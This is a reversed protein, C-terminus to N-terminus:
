EAEGAPPQTLLDLIEGRMRSIREDAQAAQALFDARDTARYNCGAYMVAPEPAEPALLAAMADGLEFVSFMPGAQDPGFRFHQETANMPARELRLEASLAQAEARPLPTVIWDQVLGIERVQRGHFLVPEALRYGMYGLPEDDREQRTLYTPWDDTFFTDALAQFGAPDACDLIAPLAGAPPPEAAAGAACLTATLAALCSALKRM